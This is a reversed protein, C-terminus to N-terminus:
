LLAAGTFHVGSGARDRRFRKVESTWEQLGWFYPKLFARPIRFPSPPLRGTKCYM